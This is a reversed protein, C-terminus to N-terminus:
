LEELNLNTPFDKPISLIVKQKSVSDFGYVTIRSFVKSCEAAEEPSLKCTAFGSKQTNSPKKQNVIAKFALLLSEKNQAQNDETQDRYTNIFYLLSWVKNNTYILANSQLTQGDIATAVYDSNQAWNLSMSVVQNPLWSLRQSEGPYSQATSGSRLQWQSIHSRGYANAPLINLEAFIEIATASSKDDAGLAASFFSLAQDLLIIKPYAFKYKEFSPNKALVKVKQALGSSKGQYEKMFTKLALVSVEPANDRKSFPQKQALLRNFASVLKGYDKIINDSRFSECHKQAQGILAKQAAAFLDNQQPIVLETVQEICQSLELSIFQDNFFSELKTQSNAPNESQQKHLEILSNQWKTFLQYHTFKGETNLLYAILPEAYGTALQNVRHRQASLYGKLQGESSIGFMANLYQNETWNALTKPQYIRNASYLQDVQKLMNYVHNQTINLFWSQSENFQLTEFAKSLRILLDRAQRFNTVKYAIQAERQDVPGLTHTTYQTSGQQRANSILTTMSVQLQSLAMVQALYEPNSMHKDPSLLNAYKEQAFKQYEQYESLAQNLISVSWFFDNGAPENDKKNQHNMFTLASLDNIASFLAVAQGTFNAKQEKANFKYLEFGFLRKNESLGEASDQCSTAQLANFDNLDNTNPPAEGNECRMKRYSLDRCNQAYNSIKQDGSHGTDEAIQLLQQQIDDCINHESNIWNSQMYRLWSQYHQQQEAFNTNLDYSLVKSKLSHNNAILAFFISPADILNVIVQKHQEASNKVKLWLEKDHNTEEECYHNPEGEARNNSKLIIADIYLKDREFFSDPLTTAYLQEVLNNLSSLIENHRFSKHEILNNLSRHTAFQNAMGQLWSTYESLQNEPGIQRLKEAQQRLLIHSRCLLAPFVKETFINYNFYNKLNENKPIKSADPISLHEMISPDMASIHELARNVETLDASKKSTFVTYIAANLSEVQDSLNSVYMAFGVGYTTAFILILM